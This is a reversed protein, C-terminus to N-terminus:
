GESHIKRLILSRIYGYRLNSWTMLGTRRMLATLAPFVESDIQLKLLYLRRALHDLLPRCERPSKRGIQRMCSLHIHVYGSHGMCVRDDQQKKEVNFKLCVRFISKIIIHM